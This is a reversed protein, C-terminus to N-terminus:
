VDNYDDRDRTHILRRSKRHLKLVAALVGSEVPILKRLGKKM